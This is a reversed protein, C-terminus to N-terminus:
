PPCRPKEGAHKNEKTVGGHTPHLAESEQTQQNFVALISPGHIDVLYTPTQKFSVLSDATSGRCQSMAKAKNERVLICQPRCNKIEEGGLSNVTGADLLCLLLSQVHGSVPNLAQM